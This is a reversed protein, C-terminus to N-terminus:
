ARCRGRRLVLALDASRLREVVLMAGAFLAPLAAAVLFTTRAGFADVTFGGAAAGLSGGALFGVGLWAFAEATRSDPVDVAVLGYLRAFAPAIAAGGAFLIAVLGVRGPAAALLALGAAV